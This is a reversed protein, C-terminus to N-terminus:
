LHHHRPLYYFWSAVWHGRTREGPVPGSDGTESPKESWCVTGYNFIIQLWEIYHPDLGQTLEVTFSKSFMGDNWSMQKVGKGNRDKLLLYFYQCEWKWTEMPNQGCECSSALSPESCVIHKWMGSCNSCVQGM